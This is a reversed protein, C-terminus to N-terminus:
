LFPMPKRVGAKSSPEPLVWLDSGTKADTQTYMIYQGDRSWDAPSKPGGGKVVAEEAGGRTDKRYLDGARGFIVRSGDPSWVM